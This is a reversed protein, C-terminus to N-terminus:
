LTGPAESSKMGCFTGGRSTAPRLLLLVYAIRFRAAHINKMLQRDLGPHRGLIRDLIKV